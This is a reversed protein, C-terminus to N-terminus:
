YLWKLCHKKKQNDECSNNGVEPGTSIDFTANSDTMLEFSEGDSPIFATTNQISFPSEDDKNCTSNSFDEM